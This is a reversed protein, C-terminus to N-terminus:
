VAATAGRPRKLTYEWLGRPTLAAPSPPLIAVTNVLEWGEQGMENLVDFPASPNQAFNQVMGNITLVVLNDNITGVRLQAYEWSQTPGSV